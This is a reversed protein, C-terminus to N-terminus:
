TAIQQPLSNPLGGFDGNSMLVVLDGQRMTRILYQEIEEVSAFSVAQKGDATLASVLVGVNLAKLPTTTASYNGPDTVERIVVLDASAFSARYAEQFFARRSTNSRPEYAVVIRRNPYAERLGCLTESVATPHHAFDEIVLIGGVDAIVQQRRLVGQYQSLAAALVRPNCGLTRGVAAAALMNCANYEGTLTTKFRLPEGDLVFELEQTPPTSLPDLQRREIRYTSDSNRGYFQLRATIEPKGKWSRALELLKKDGDFLLILGDKPVRAAARTFETAIQEVSEYIDGHDFELSTVVLLDPRYSHFKPWKAFFASDYEDGELVVIRDNAPLKASPARVSTSLGRPLGGIFYGPARGAQELLTVILATTTTKGHTGIVVVSNKCEAKTGILLSSLVEPMSAYAINRKFVEEVEPNTRSVSNGIVVLGIENTINEARFGEFLPTAIRRVVEDMPPYFSKDSGSVTFGRAVLLTALSATGTGCIGIIHIRTGPKLNSVFKARAVSAEDMEPLSRPADSM